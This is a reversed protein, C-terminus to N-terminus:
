TKSSRNLRFVRTPHNQTFQKYLDPHAHKFTQYDFQSRSQAKWTALTRGASDTLISADAMCTRIALGLADVDAEIADHQRELELLKAVADAIDQSAIVATGMDQPWRAVADAISRVDPPTGDEVHRWFTREREILLEGLQPDYPVTYVRYDSGGILVPIDALRLGTVIMQHTVQLLYQMPVADTGPEGWEASKALGATKVEVVRDPLLADPTCSMWPYENSTRSACPTEIPALATEAYKALVVSELRRGWEMHVSDVDDTTDATKTQWLEFPTQWPSLGCAAAAESAGIYRKRAALQEPTM